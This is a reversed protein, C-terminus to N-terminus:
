LSAFNHGKWRLGDVSQARIGSRVFGYRFDESGFATRGVIREDHVERGALLEWLHDCALRACDLLGEHGGEPWTRQREYQRRAL